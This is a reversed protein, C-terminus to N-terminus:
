RPLLGVFVCLCVWLCSWNCYVSSSLKARLTVFLQFFEVADDDDYDDDDDDDDDNWKDCLLWLVGLMDSINSVNACM